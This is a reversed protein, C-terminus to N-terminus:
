RGDTRALKKLTRWEGLLARLSLRASRSLLTKTAGLLRGRRALRM